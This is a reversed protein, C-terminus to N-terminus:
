MGKRRRKRAYPKRRKNEAEWCHLALSTDVSFVGEVSPTRRGAVGLGGALVM